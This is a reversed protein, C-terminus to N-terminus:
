AAYVPEMVCGCWASVNSLTVGAGIVMSVHKCGLGVPTVAVPWYWDDRATADEERQLERLARLTETGSFDVISGVGVM